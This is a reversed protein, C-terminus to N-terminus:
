GEMLSGNMSLSKSDIFKYKVIIGKLAMLFAVRQFVLPPVRFKSTEFLHNEDNCFVINDQHIFM